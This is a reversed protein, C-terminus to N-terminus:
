SVVVSTPVDGVRPYNNGDFLKTLIAQLDVCDFPKYLCARVGARLSEAAVLGGSQGTIMVVPSSYREQIHRLITMGNAVPLNYDLLIGDYHTQTLKTMAEEGNEATDCTYGYAELLIQFLGRLAQDDDVILLHKRTMTM